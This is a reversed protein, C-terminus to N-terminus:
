VQISYIWELQNNQFKVFIKKVKGSFYERINKKRGFFTIITEGTDESITQRTVNFQIVHRLNTMVDHDHCVMVNRVHDVEVDVLQCEDQDEDM